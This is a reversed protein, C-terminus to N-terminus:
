KFIGLSAVPANQKPQVQNSIAAVRSDYSSATVTGAYMDQGTILGQAREQMEDRLLTQMVNYDFEKRRVAKLAEHLAGKEPETLVERFKDNFIFRWKHADNFFEDPNTEMRQVITKIGPMLDSM